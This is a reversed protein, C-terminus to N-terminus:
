TCLSIFDLQAKPVAKRKCVARGTHKGKAANQDMCPKCPEQPGPTMLPPRASADNKKASSRISAAWTTSKYRVAPMCSRHFSAASCCVPTRAGLRHPTGMCAPDSGRDFATDHLIINTVGFGGEDPNRRTSSGGEGRGEVPGTTVGCFLRSRLTILTSGCARGPSLEM